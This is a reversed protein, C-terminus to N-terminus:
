RKRRDEPSRIMTSSRLRKGLPTSPRNMQVQRLCISDQVSSEGLQEEGDEDSLSNFEVEFGDSESDSILLERDENLASLVLNNHRKRTDCEAPLGDLDVGGTDGLEEQLELQKEVETKRDLKLKHKVLMMAEFTNSRYSRNFESQCRAHFFEREVGVISASACLYDRAMAAVTPYTLFHSLHRWADM